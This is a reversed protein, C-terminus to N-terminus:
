QEGAKPAILSTIAKFPILVQSSGVVKFAPLKGMSIYKRITSPHLQLYGATQSITFYKEVEGSNPSAGKDSNNM